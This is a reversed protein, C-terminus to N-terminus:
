AAEKRENPKTKTTKTETPKEHTLWFPSLHEPMKVKRVERRFDAAYRLDPVKGLLYREQDGSKRQVVLYIDVSNVKAKAKVRSSKKTKNTKSKKAM